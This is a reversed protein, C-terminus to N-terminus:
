WAPLFLGKLAIGGDARSAALLLGTAFLLGYWRLELPGLRFLIPDINWRV